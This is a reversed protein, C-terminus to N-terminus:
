FDLATTLLQAFNTAPFKFNTYRDPFKTGEETCYVLMVNKDKSVIRKAKLYALGYLLSRYVYESHSIETDRTCYYLLVIKHYMSIYDSSSKIATVYLIPASPRFHSLKISMDPIVSYVVYAVADHEEGSLVCSRALTDSGTNSDDCFPQNVWYTNTLQKFYANQLFLFYFSNEMHGTRFVYRDPYFFIENLCSPHVFLRREAVLSANLITPKKMAYIKKIFNVVGPSLQLIDASVEPVERDKCEDFQQTMTLEFLFVDYSEAIWDLDDDDEEKIDNIVIRTGLRVNECNLLGLTKNLDDFYQRNGPAYSILVQVGVERSFTIDELEELSVNVRNCRGPFRVPLRSRLVGPEMVTCYLESKVITDIKIQMTPGILIFDNVKCDDMLFRANVFIKTATSHISFERKYTLVLAHGKELPIVADPPELMGTFQMRPSLLGFLTAMVPFGSERSINLESERLKLINKQNEFGTGKFLDFMFCRVGGRLLSELANADFDSIEICQKNEFIRLEDDECLIKFGKFFGLWADDQLENCMEEEIEELDENEDLTSSAESTEDQLSQLKKNLSLFSCNATSPRGKGTFIQQMVYQQQLYNLKERAVNMRELDAAIASFNLKQNIQELLDDIIGGNLEM